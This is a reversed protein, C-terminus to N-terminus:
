YTIFNGRFTKIKSSFAIFDQDILDSKITFFKSNNSFFLLTTLEACMKKNM